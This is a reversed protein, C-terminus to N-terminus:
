GRAEHGGRPWQESRSDERSGIGGNVGDRAERLGGGLARLGDRLLLGRSDRIRLRRLVGSDLSEVDVSPVRIRGRLLGPHLGVRQIQVLGTRHHEVSQDPYLVLDVGGEGESSAATLTDTTTAGHVNISDVGQGAQTHSRRHVQPAFFAFVSQGIGPRIGVSVSFAERIYGRGCM